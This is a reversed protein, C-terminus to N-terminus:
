TINVLWERTALTMPLTGDNLKRAEKFKIEVERKGKKGKNKRGKGKFMWGQNASQKKVTKKRRKGAVISLVPM